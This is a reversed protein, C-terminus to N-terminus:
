VLDVIEIDLPPAIKEIFRKIGFPIAYFESFFNDYDTITSRMDVSTYVDGETDIDYNIEPLEHNAILLQKLLEHYNEDPVQEKRCILSSVVIWKNGHFLITPHFKKGHIEYPIIIEDNKIHYNIDKEELYRKVKEM